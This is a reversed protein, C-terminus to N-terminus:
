ATQGGREEGLGGEEVGISGMGRHRGDDASGGGGDAFAVIGVVVM